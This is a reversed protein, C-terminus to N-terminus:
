PLEAALEAIIEDALMIGCNTLSVTGNEGIKVFNKVALEEIKAWVEQSEPDDPSPLDCKKAGESTRLSLMLRELTKKREDITEGGETPERGEGIARVYDRPDAVNWSRKEGDFSHASSGIGLYPTFNWYGWNHACSYGPFAFNSIEYWEFGGHELVGTMAEYMDATESPEPVPLGGKRALDFFPTDEEIGLSYASIHTVGLSLVGDLTRRWVEMTQGPIGFMLDASINRFGAKHAAKVARVAHEATHLRGLTGLLTDDLAQIGISVRNVGKDLLEALWDAELSDPNAEVTCEVTEASLRGVIGQILRAPVISPTGGGIYVTRPTGSFRGRSRMRLERMAAEAYEEMMGEANTISKFGCYPCKRRCFPLHIYLGFPM